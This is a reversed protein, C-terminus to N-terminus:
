ICPVQKGSSSSLLSLVYIKFDGLFNMLIFSLQLDNVLTSMVDFM